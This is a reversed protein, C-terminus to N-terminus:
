DFVKDEFGNAKAWQTYNEKEKLNNNLVKWIDESEFGRRWAAAGALDYKHVLSSKLNISQADELWIRYVAQGEKYEAYNQGSKEDWTVVANKEKIIKQATDMSIARSSVKKKGDVTEEKWERTYFPLGLLLKESPIENLLKEIGYEVWSLQAVSGATPSSAWHQDYTMVAMYDLVEALAKRDYCMSWNESSSKVTVDMSVILGQEKLMPVLERVFQTLMDKDKLYVNEFDINIGDLQYLKAYVLIQQVIKERTESNNLIIHTLDPDFSNTVVGWVKYGKEHAWNVYTVDGKNAVTGQKDVVSFWTPSVVDLGEIKKVGSMDPTSRHVYEWVLNIKGNEPKWKPASQPQVGVSKVAEQYVKVFRKEIYGLIGDDTRVRYWRDGYEEFARMTYGTKLDNLFVPAKISPNKRIVAHDSIVEATQKFSGKYDVIVVNNTEIWEIEIGFLTSLFQIPVYPVEDVLRVPINLDVPRANVMATLNDTRMKIVKDSTTFIVKQNSDDWYVKPDFYEKIVPLSLLIEGNEIVPAEKEKVLEGEIILQIEGSHKTSVVTYNPWLYYAISAAALVTVMLLIILLRKM